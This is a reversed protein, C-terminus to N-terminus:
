IIMKKSLKKYYINNKKAFISAELLGNFTGTDLWYDKQELKVIKVKNKKLLINNYDTIEFEGRKSKKLDSLYSLDDYKYKYIGTVAYNSIFHKPKEIIINKNKDYVGFREPDHVKKIFLLGQNTQTNKNMINIIKQSKFINDGLLLLVDKGKRIKKLQLKLAQAIGEPKKQISFKLSLNLKKSFDFLKKFSSIHEKSTVIIYDKYGSNLLMSFPYYILPMDYIPLLHKNISKTIPYLRTGFGGAM